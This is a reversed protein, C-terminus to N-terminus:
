LAGRGCEMAWGRAGGLGHWRGGFLSRGHELDHCCAFWPCYEMPLRTLRRLWSTWFTGCPRSSRRRVILITRPLTFRAGSGHQIRARELVRVSGKRGGFAAKRSELRRREQRWVRGKKVGFAAKGEFLEEILDVM